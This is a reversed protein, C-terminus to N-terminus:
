FGKNEFINGILNLVNPLADADTIIQEVSGDQRIASLEWLGAFQTNKYQRFRFTFPEIFKAGRIKDPRSSLAAGAEIRQRKMEERIQADIPTEVTKMDYAM